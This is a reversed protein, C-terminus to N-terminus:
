SDFPFPEKHRPRLPEKEKNDDIGYENIDGLVVRERQFKLEVTNERIVMKPTEQNKGSGLIFGLVKLTVTTEYKKEEESLNSVNNDSPYNDEIFAEYSYGDKELIFQNIGGALVMFPQMVENMQQQYDTRINITYSLDYYVPMPATITQYVIKQNPIKKGFSDKWPFNNQGYVDVSDANRFNKTKEQNIRKHIRYSGKRYDRVPFVNGPIPRSAVATKGVSTREVSIMPFILADAGNTRRRERQAAREATLWMVHVKKWGQNTTSHIDLVKDVWNFVASDITEFNSPKLTKVKHPM